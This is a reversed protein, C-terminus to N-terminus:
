GSAAAIESLRSDATRMSGTPSLLEGLVDRPSLTQIVFTNGGGRAARPTTATLRDSGSTVNPLGAGGVEGVSGIAAGLVPNGSIAGVILGLLQFFAKIAASALLQGVAAIIGQVMSDIIAKGASGFTQMRNTLNAFVFAFGNLMHDRLNGLANAIRDANRVVSEGFEGLQLDPVAAKSLEMLKLLSERSEKMAEARTRPDQGRLGPPAEFPVFSSAEIVKKKWEALAKANEIAKQQVREQWALFDKIGQENGPGFMPKERPPLQIDAGLVLAAGRAFWPIKNIRNGIDILHETVVLLKTITPAIGVAAQKWFGEWRVALAEVAEHLKDLKAIASEDLVNGTDKAQQSVEGFAAALKLLIPIVKTGGRAGFVDMTAAVREAPDKIAAIGQAAQMLATFTDHSSVGLKQLAPDNTAIAKNLFKLATELSEVAVANTRFTFQLIQLNRVTVGTKDSLNELEKAAESQTEIFHLVREAAEHAFEALQKLAEFSIAAKFSGVLGEFNHQINKLVSSAEDVARITVKAEAM